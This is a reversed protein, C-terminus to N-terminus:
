QELVNMGVGDVRQTAAAELHLGALTGQVRLFQHGRQVAHVQQPDAGLRAHGAFHELRVGGELGHTREADPGVLDIEGGGRVGGRGHEVRRVGVRTGHHLERQTLDDRQRTVERVLVGRHVLAHPVLGGLAGVLHPAAGQPNHAVAVDALLQRDHRLGEPHVDVEVVDHVAQGHAVRGLAIGQLLQQVRHLGHGQVHVPALAVGVHEAPLLEALHAGTGQEEVQGATVHHVDLGQALGEDGAM